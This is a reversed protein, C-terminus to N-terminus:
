PASLSVMRATDAPEPLLSVAVLRGNFFELQRAGSAKRAYTWVERWGSRERTRAIKKPPGWGPTNLTQDDTMGLTLKDAGPVAAVAASQPLTTTASSSAYAVQNSRVQATSDDGDQQPRKAADASSVTLAEEATGAACPASQYAVGESSVCKYIGNAYANVSFAVVGVVLARYLM